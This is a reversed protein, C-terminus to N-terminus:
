WLCGEDVAQFAVNATLLNLLESTGGGLQKAVGEFLADISAAMGLLYQARHWLGKAHVAQNILQYPVNVSM